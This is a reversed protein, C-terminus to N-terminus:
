PSGLLPVTFRGSVVDGDTDGFATIELIGDGYFAAQVLEGGTSPDAYLLTGSSSDFPIRAGPFAEAPDFAVYPVVFTDSSLAGAVAIGAPRAGGPDIDGAVAGVAVFPLTEGDWVMVLEAEGEQFPDPSTNLTGWTTSFTAELSGLEVLCPSSRLPTDLDPPDALEDELHGRRTSIFTRLQEQGAFFSSRDMAHVHPEVLAVMRDAEALLADETWAEDLLAQLQAVYLERGEPLAYLRNALVGQTVVMTPRGQGFPEEDGLVADIGWPLFHLRGSTPDDYVYFNNTNGAYGDWHGLLAEAAWFRVFADVDIVAGLSAIVEDDPAELADVVELLRDGAPEDGNKQDFTGTWGDRFDSLTGEWLTGSADEFNREVLDEDVGDVHVYAGLDEGNVVVHAFACRPAPVGAAAFVEYGLCQRTISPDQVANNLTLKELGLYEGDEVYEGFDLKLGPKTTSSSGLLGKKRIGVEAIAVGDITVTGPFYTYPSEWPQALCEGTLMDMLDREQFRLTDWDAPDLTIEIETLRDTPFLADSPDPEPAVDDTDEVPDEGGLDIEGGRQCGALILVALIRM